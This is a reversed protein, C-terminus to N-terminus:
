FLGAVIQFLFFAVILVLVGVIVFQGRGNVWDAVEEDAKSRKAAYRQAFSRRQEPSLDSM